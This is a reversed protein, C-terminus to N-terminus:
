EKLLNENIINNYGQSSILGAIRKATNEVIEPHVTEDLDCAQNLSLSIKRPKKIYDIKISSPIFKQNHFVNIRDKDLTSLPSHPMPSAFASNLINFLDETKTLRNPEEKTPSVPNIYPKVVTTALTTVIDITSYEIEIILADKILIGEPCNIDFWNGYRCDSGKSRLVEIILNYLEFKSATSAIGSTYPPYNQINFVEIGNIRIKLTAYLNLVDKLKILGVNINTNYIVANTTFSKGCLNKVFTRDNILTFYDGPLYSFVSNDDRILCPLTATSILTRIDDYRKQTFQLGQKKENSQVSLRQKIFRVVEENLLWDKEEPEFSDVIKSNVKELILDIGIHMEQPTM